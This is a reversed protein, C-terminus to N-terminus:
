PENKTVMQKQKHAWALAMRIMGYPFRENLAEHIPKLEVPQGLDKWQAIIENRDNVSIYANMDITDEGREYLAAIHSYITVEKLNRQIAVEAPTMGQKLLELTELYTQGKVKTHNQSQVYTRIVEIIHGGFDDKKKEGIGDVLLLDDLVLPKKAVIDHLTADSFIVYAPVGRAKATTARWNRLIEFLENVVEQTKSVKPKPDPYQEFKALQVSTEGKLVAASLPTLRLLSGEKYDITMLGQHLLQTIYSKWDLYGLDRGVGFTKIQDYGLARLEQRGSGRLIDILMNIGVREQTRYLASLAKQALITGDVVTPPQVCNDCHGCNHNTYEGFYNLILNTRCSAAAASEWMRDLKETQVRKHTEDGNGGDIFSQLQMKDGWNYFLLCEASLGDRGARGIEQYYGEINKPLNYHVVFRVNSKDIGMGFAITACVIRIEDNQFREQVRNRSFSDMGAHYYAADYGAAKLKDALSETSKKSLCYIIGSEKRYPRLFQLLQGIRDQGPAATIHLNPREFSGLFKKANPIGLREVIDQQTAIDATATLAIIPVHPFREKLIGLKTYEPRFDNGWVSICHAEDVAFLSVKQQSLFDFFRDQILSEPSMYLLKLHGQSIDLSIQQKEATDINSHLTAAAVGSARLASVQDHMLAILPSVVVTLGDLCLAPVQFCLSKGGGTPLITLVDHSQLVESIIEEQMPRFNHFGFVKELIVRPDEM